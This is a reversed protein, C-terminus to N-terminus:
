VCVYRCNNMVDCRCEPPTITPLIVKKGRSTICARYICNDHTTRRDTRKDTVLRLEVLIASSFWRTLCTWNTEVKDFSRFKAIFENFMTATKAVFKINSRCLPVNSKCQQKHSRPKLRSVPVKRYCALSLCMKETQSVPASEHSSLSYFAHM